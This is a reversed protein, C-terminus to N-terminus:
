ILISPGLIYTSLPFLFFFLMFNLSSYVQLLIIKQSFFTSIQRLLTPFYYSIPYIIRGVEQKEHQLNQQWAIDKVTLLM